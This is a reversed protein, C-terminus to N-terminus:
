NDDFNGGTDGGEWILTDINFAAWAFWYANQVRGNTGPFGLQEGQRPGAIAEGFVDWTTGEDDVLLAPLPDPSASFELVTGDSLSSSFAVALSRTSSGAVVFSVTNFVENFVQVDSTFLNIPYAISDDGINVGLVFRKEHLRTDLPQVQFLLESNSRYDNYPYRGYDRDIGTDRSLIESDPYMQLWTAYTTQIVPRKVPREDVRSGEVSQELMQAWHSDSTRDFLILNSQYLLGSVGFRTEGTMGSEWVVPSGTLPCYSVVLATSSSEDNLIEHWNLISHPAARVSTDTKYGVVLDASSETTQSPPVFLPNDLAPIGDRGPGGDIVESQPITWNATSSEGGGGGGSSSGGGGCSTLLFTALVLGSLKILTREGIAGM